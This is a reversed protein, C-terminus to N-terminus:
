LVLFHKKKNTQKWPNRRGNRKQQLLLVFKQTEVTSVITKFWWDKVWFELGKDRIHMQQVSDMDKDWTFDLSTKKLKQKKM